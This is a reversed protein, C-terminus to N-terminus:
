SYWSPKKDHQSARGLANRAQNANNIPYHDKNDLVSPHEAPFVVKGRSRVKPEGGAEKLFSNALIAVKKVFDSFM